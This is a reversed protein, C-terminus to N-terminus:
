VPGLHFATDWALPGAILGAFLALDTGAVELAPVSEAFFDLLLQSGRRVFDVAAFM